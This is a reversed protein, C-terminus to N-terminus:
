RPQNYLYIHAREDVSHMHNTSQSELLHRRESICTHMQVPHANGKLARSQQRAVTPDHLAAVAGPRLVEEM